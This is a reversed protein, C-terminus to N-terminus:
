LRDRQACISAYSLDQDLQTNLRAIARQLAPLRRERQRARELRALKTAPPAPGLSVWLLLGPQKCLPQDLWRASALNCMGPDFPPGQAPLSFEPQLALPAFGHQPTWVFADRVNAEWAHTRAQYPLKPQYTRQCLFGGTFSPFYKHPLCHGEGYVGLLQLLAHRTAPLLTALQQTTLSKVVSMRWKGRPLRRWARALREPELWDLAQTCTTALSARESWDAWRMVERWVDDPLTVQLQQERERKM